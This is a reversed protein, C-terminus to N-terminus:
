VQVVIKAMEIMGSSLDKALDHCLMEFLMDRSLAEFASESGQM